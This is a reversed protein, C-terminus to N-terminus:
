VSRWDKFVMEVFMRKIESPFYGAADKRLSEKGYEDELEQETTLNSKSFGTVRPAFENVGERSYFVGSIQYHQGDFLIFYNHVHNQRALYFKM